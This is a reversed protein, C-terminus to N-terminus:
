EPFATHIIHDAGLYPWCSRSHSVLAKRRILASRGLVGSSTSKMRKNSLGLERRSSPKQTYVMEKTQFASRGQKRQQSRKMSGEWLIAHWCELSHRGPYSWQALLPRNYAAGHVTGEEPLLETSPACWDSDLCFFLSGFLCGSIDAPKLPPFIFYIILEMISPPISFCFLLFHSLGSILVWLSSSPVRCPFSLFHKWKVFSICDSGSASLLAFAWNREEGPRRFM